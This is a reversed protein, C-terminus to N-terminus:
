NDLFCGVEGCWYVWEDVFSKLIWWAGFSEADHFSLERLATTTLGVFSLAVIRGPLHGWSQLLECLKKAFRALKAFGNSANNGEFSMYEPSLLGLLEKQVFATIQEKMKPYDKSFHSMEIALVDELNVFQNWDQFMNNRNQELSVIKSANRGSDIVKILRKVLQIFQSVIRKKSSVIPVPLDITAKTIMALYTNSFQSLKDLVIDPIDDFEVILSSLMKALARYTILDSHEVWQYLEESIFLNYMQPSISGSSFSELTSPLDDFKMFRINEFLQNCYVKYLSEVSSAIDMDVNHPLYPNISPFALPLEVKEECTRSFFNDIFKLNEHAGTLIMSVRRNNNHLAPKSINSVADVSSVGSNVMGAASSPASEITSNSFSTNDLNISATNTSIMNIPTSMCSSVPTAAVTPMEDSMLLPSILKLGCYHYKSQGRMGLRRTKLHPFLSRILKGLTAQSLPKLNNSACSAAYQAFIRGRPVYSDGDPVCNNMLWILAYVQRERERHQEAAQIDSKSHTSTDMNLVEIEAARVTTAYETLPKDKNRLAVLKLINEQTTRKSTLESAIVPQPAPEGAKRKKWRQEQEQLLLQHHQQQRHLDQMHQFHKLQVQVHQPNQQSQHLHQNQHQNQHLHQNQHQHPHQSPAQHLLQQVQAPPTGHRQQPALVLPIQGATSPPRQLQAAYQRPPSHLAGFDEAQHKMAAGGKSSIPPLHSPGYGTAYQLHPPHAMLAGHPAAGYMQQALPQALLGQAQGSGAGGASIPPEGRGAMLPQQQPVLQQHLAPGEAGPGSGAGPGHSNSTTPASPLSSQATNLPTGTSTSPTSRNLLSASAWPEQSAQDVNM